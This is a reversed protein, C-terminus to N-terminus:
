TYELSVMVLTLAMFKNMVELLIKRDRKHIKIKEFQTHTILVSILAVSQASKREKKKKKKEKKSKLAADPAYPPEWARPQIPAVGVPRCGLRLLALDWQALGTILGAVEHNRTLNTEAAGHCSSRLLNELACHLIVLQLGYASSQFKNTKNCQKDVLNNRLPFKTGM